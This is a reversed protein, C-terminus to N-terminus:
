REFQLRANKLETYGKYYSYTDILATCETSGKADYIIEISFAYQGNVKLYVMYYNNIMNANDPDRPVRTPEIILSQNGWIDSIVDKVIDDNIENLDVELGIIEYDTREFLLSYDDGDRYDGFSISIVNISFHMNDPLDYKNELYATFENRFDKNLRVFASVLVDSYEVDTYIEFEAGKPLVDCSVGYCREDLNELRIGTVSDPDIDYKEALYTKISDSEENVLGSKKSEYSFGVALASSIIAFVIILDAITLIKHKRICSIGFILQYLFCIPFVPIISGLVLQNYMAEFGYIFPGGILGRQVGNIGASIISIYPLYSLFFLIVGTIGFIKKAASHKGM